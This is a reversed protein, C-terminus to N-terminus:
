QRLFTIEGGIKLQASNCDSGEWSSWASAPGSGGANTSLRAPLLSRTQNLNRLELRSPRPPPHRPRLYRPYRQRRRRRPKRRLPQQLYQSQWRPSPGITSGQRCIISGSAFRMRTPQHCARPKACISRFVFFQRSTRDTKNWAAARTTSIPRTTPTSISTLLFRLVRSSIGSCARKRPRVSKSKGIM